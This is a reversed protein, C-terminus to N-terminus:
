LPIQSGRQFATPPNKRSYRGYEGAIGTSDVVGAGSCSLRPRVHVMGLEWHSDEKCNGEDQEPANKMFGPLQRKEMKGIQARRDAPLPASYWPAVM